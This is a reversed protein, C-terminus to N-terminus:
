LAFSLLLSSLEGVYLAQAMLEDEKSRVAALERERAENAALAAASDADEKTYWFLDKGQM